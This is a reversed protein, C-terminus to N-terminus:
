TLVSKKISDGRMIKMNVLKIVDILQKKSFYNSTITVLKEM